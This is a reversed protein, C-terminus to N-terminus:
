FQRTDQKRGASFRAQKPGCRLAAVGAVQSLCRESASGTEAESEGRVNLAARSGRGIMPTEGDAIPDLLSGDKSVRIRSIFLM